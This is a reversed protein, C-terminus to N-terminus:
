FWWLLFHIDGAGLTSGSVFCWLWCHIWRSSLLGLVLPLPVRRGSGCCSWVGSSSWLPDERCCEACVWPCPNYGLLCCLFAVVVVGGVGVLLVLCPSGPFPIEGVWLVGVGLFTWGLVGVGGATSRGWVALSLKGSWHIEGGPFRLLHSVFWVWLFLPDLFAVGWGAGGCVRGAFVLGLPNELGCGVSLWCVGCLLVWCVCVVFCGLGLVAHIGICHINGLVGWPSWFSVSLLGALV